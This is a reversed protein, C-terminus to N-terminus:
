LLHQVGSDGHVELSEMGHATPLSNALLPDQRSKSQFQELSSWGVGGESDLENGPTARTRSQAMQHSNRLKQMEQLNGSRLM